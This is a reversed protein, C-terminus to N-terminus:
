EDRIISATHVESVDTSLQKVRCYMGSSLESCWVQRRSFKFNWLKKWIRWWKWSILSECPHWETNYQDNWPSETSWTQSLVSLQLV